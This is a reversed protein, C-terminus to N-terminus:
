GGWRQLSNGIMMYGFGSGMMRVGGSGVEAGFSRSRDEEEGAWGDEVSRAGAM